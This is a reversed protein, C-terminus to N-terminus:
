RAAAAREPSEGPPAGEGDVRLAPDLAHLAAPDLSAHPDGAGELSARFFATVLARLARHARAESLTSPYPKADRTQLARRNQVHMDHLLPVGDCFHFHDAGEAIVLRRPSALRAFLPRVSTDIDVLCDDAGAVVLSPVALPLEGAEFARRGVFPESAPALGCVARVRPDLRPMKLATWGGFSHGLVGIRARDVAPVARGAVDLAADVAARLDHPRRARISRHLTRRQEEDLKLMEPFTNGTHDPAVVVFGHSALHTTLFTSQRRLGSNGHSFAVLPFPGGAPAAGELARHAQGFPHPARADADDGVAAPYWVDTPLRRAPDEPDGVDLTVVGVACPGRAALALLTRSM